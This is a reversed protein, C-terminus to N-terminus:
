FNLMFGVFLGTDLTVEGRDDFDSKVNRVGVYVDGERLVSYTAYLTLDSMDDVDGFALVDPAYYIHGGFGIRDYTPLKAEFFGGLALAGGDASAEDADVYYLRGGLGVNIPRAETAANGTIHFGAAMVDGTDQHHLWSADVRMKENDFPHVFTLRAADDNLDLSVTDAQAAMPRGLAVGLLLAACGLTGFKGVMRRTM